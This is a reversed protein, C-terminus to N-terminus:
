RRAARPRGTAAGAPSRCAGSTTRWSVKESFTTGSDWTSSWNVRATVWGRSRPRRPRRRGPSSSGRRRSSRPGAAPRCASKRRTGCTRARLALLQGLAPAQARAVQPERLDPQPVRHDAAREVIDPDVPEDTGVWDGLELPISALPRRLPPGIPRPQDTELAAQAALGRRDSRSASHHDSTIPSM